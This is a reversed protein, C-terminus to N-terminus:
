GAPFVTGMSIGEPTKYDMDALVPSEAADGFAAMIRSFRQEVMGRMDPHTFIYLQGSQIAERVRRGVLEPDIGSDVPSPGAQAVPEKAGGYRDQRTRGSRGIATRVFGPCLVSVGINEPALQANWGESMAVVAFKTASYPEMGPPSIMGAMSATNVFWGGEGHSRILPLFAEMGYVVGMLNVAVIWDWDAAPVQGIPGGAGVGANNCVLHAKGFTKITEAAAAEVSAREGVDCLRRPRWRPGSAWM